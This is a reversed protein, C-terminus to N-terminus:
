KRHVARLRGAEILRDSAKKWFTNRVQKGLFHKPLAWYYQAEKPVNHAVLQNNTPDATYKIALVEDGNVDVLHM